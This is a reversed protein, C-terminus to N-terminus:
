RCPHIFTSWQGLVGIILQLMGDACWSGMCSPAWGTVCAVIRFGLYLCHLKLSRLLIKEVLQAAGGCHLVSLFKALESVKRDIVDLMECVGRLKHELTVLGSTSQDLYFISLSGDVSRVAGPHSRNPMPGGLLVDRFRASVRGVKLSGGPVLGGAVLFARVLSVKVLLSWIRWAESVNGGCLAAIICERCAM